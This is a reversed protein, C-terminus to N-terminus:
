GAHIGKVLRPHLGILVIHEGQQAFGTVLRLALRKKVLHLFSQGASNDTIKRPCVPQTPLLGVFLPFKRARIKSFRSFRIATKGNIHYCTGLLFADSAKTM